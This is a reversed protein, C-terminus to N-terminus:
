VAKNELLINAAYKEDYSSIIVNAKEENIKKIIKNKNDILYFSNPRMNRKVAEYWSKWKWQGKEYEPDELQILNTGCDRVLWLFQEEKEILVQLDHIYFDTKYHKVKLTVISNMKLLMEDKSTEIKKFTKRLHKEKEIDNLNYFDKPNM